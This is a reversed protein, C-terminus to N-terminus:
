KYRSDFLFVFLLTLIGEIFRILYIYVRAKHGTLCDHEVFCEVLLSYSFKNGVSFSFLKNHFLHICSSCDNM